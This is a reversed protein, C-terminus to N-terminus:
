RRSVFPNAKLHFRWRRGKARSIGIRPSSAIAGEPPRVGRLLHIEDGRLDKGNDRLTIGLAQCLRAPGGTLLRGDAPAADFGRRVTMAEIGAVPEVARLLVAAGEGRRGTVVNACCHMGYTFYVYLRGGPEFMVANRDTRGNFSHSAPDGAGPYAEVEVIRGSLLTGGIRRVLLCGLLDRAVEVADRSFFRPSLKRSTRHLPRLGRLPVSLQPVRDEM